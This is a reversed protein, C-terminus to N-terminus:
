GPLRRETVSRNDGDSRYHDATQRRGIARQAPSRGRPQARSGQRAGLRNGRATGIAASAAINDVAPHSGPGADLCLSAQYVASNGTEHEFGKVLVNPIAGVTGSGAPCYEPPRTYLSHPFPFVAAAPSDGM